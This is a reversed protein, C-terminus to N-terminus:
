GSCSDENEVTLETLPNNEHTKKKEVNELEFNSQIKSNSIEFHFTEIRLFLSFFEDRM